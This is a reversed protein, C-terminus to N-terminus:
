ICEKKESMYYRRHPISTRPQPKITEYIKWMEDHKRLVYQQKLTERYPYTYAEKRKDWWRLYWYETTSVFIERKEIKRIKLNLIRKTSPNMHNSIIWGRAKHRLIVHMIEKIAPCDPVFYRNFDASSILNPLTMYAKFEAEVAETVVREIYEKIDNETLIDTDAKERSIDRILISYGGIHPYLIAEDCFYTKLEKRHIMRFVFNLTKGPRIYFKRLKDETEFKLQAKHSKNFSSFKSYHLSNFLKDICDSFFQWQLSKPKLVIAKNSLLSNFEKRIEYELSIIEQLSLYEMGFEV